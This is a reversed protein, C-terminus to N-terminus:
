RVQTIGLAGLLILLWVTFIFTKEVAKVTPAIKTEFATPTPVLPANLYKKLEDPLGRRKARVVFPAADWTSPDALLDPTVVVNPRVIVTQTVGKPIAVQSVSRDNLEARAGWLAGSFTIALVLKILGAKFFGGQM